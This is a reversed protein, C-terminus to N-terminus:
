TAVISIVPCSIREVVVVAGVGAILTLNYPVIVILNDIGGIIYNGSVATTLLIGGIVLTLEKIGLTKGGTCIHIEVESLEILEGVLAVLRLRAYRDDSFGVRGLSCLITSGSCSHGLHIVKNLAVDVM